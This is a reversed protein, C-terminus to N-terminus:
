SSFNSSTGTKSPIFGSVVYGAGLMILLAAAPQNIVQYPLLCLLILGACGSFCFPNKTPKPYKFNSVQLLLCVVLGFVFLPPMLPSSKFFMLPSTEYLFSSFAIWGASMTIPLGTYGKQGRFEDLAKFRALRIVGFLATLVALFAATTESAPSFQYILVAPAIGYATLDVYSDLEAGFDTVGNLWRALNGDLGDLLMALMIFYASRVIDFNVAAIISFFGATMAALSVTNPVIVRWAM